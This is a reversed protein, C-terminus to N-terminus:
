SLRLNNLKLSLKLRIINAMYSKIYIDPRRTRLKQM